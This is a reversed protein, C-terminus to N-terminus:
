LPLVEFNITGLKCMTVSIKAVPRVDLCLDGPTAAVVGSLFAMNGFVPALNAAVTLRPSPVFGMAGVVPATQANVGFTPQSKFTMSGVAPATNGAVTLRSSPGFAMAGVAPATQAVVAFKPQALFAMNGVAPTTVAAISIRASPGFSMAGVVPATQANVGFAPQSKFTMAGLAQATVATVGFAPQSKFAMSGVTAGTTGAVALRSAPGFAMAGVTPATQANVGFAPLSSFAMSGVAPATNATVGFAPSTAGSPKLLAVNTPQKFLQRPNASLSIIEADTLIRNWVASVFFGIAKSSSLSIGITQAIASYGSQASSATTTNSKVGNLWLAQAAGSATHKNTYIAVNLDGVVVGNQHTIVGAATDQGQTAKVLGTTLLEVKVPVEGYSGSVQILFGTIASAFPIFVTLTTIDPTTPFGKFTIKRNYSGGKTALCTGYKTVVPDASEAITYGACTAFKLQQAVDPMDRTPGAALCSALARTIGNAAFLPAPTLPQQYRM